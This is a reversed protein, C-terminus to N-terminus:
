RSASWRVSCNSALPFATWRAVRKSAIRASRAFTASCSASRADSLASASSRSNVSRSLFKSRMKNQHRAAPAPGSHLYCGLAAPTRQRESRDGLGAVRGATHADKTTSTPPASRLQIPTSPNSATRVGARARSLVAEALGANDRRASCERHKPPSQFPPHGSTSQHAPSLAEWARHRRPIIDSTRRREM